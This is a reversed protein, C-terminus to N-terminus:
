EDGAQQALARYNHIIFFYEDRGLGLIDMVIRADAMMNYQAEMQIKRYERFNEIQEDTFKKTHMSDERHRTSQSKCTTM